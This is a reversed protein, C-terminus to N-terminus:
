YPSILFWNKRKVDYKWQQTLKQREVTVSPLIHYNRVVEVEAETGDPNISYRVIEFDVVELNQNLVEMKRLFEEPDACFKAAKAYEKWRYADHYGSVQLPLM